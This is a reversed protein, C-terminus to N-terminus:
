HNRVEGHPKRLTISGVAGILSVGAAVAFSLTFSDTIDTFVGGVYPGIAQGIGFFVTIFGLGAPALRPGVYDGAAAAMITPISWATIGFIVASLSFGVMSKYFAFIFYSLALTVYALAAGFRRGVLDSIGGWVIGCFISLGGAWAWLIGARASTLGMEKELYTSFFHMYIIYSFGYMFYVLGLYWVEKVRYILKWNLSDPGGHYAPKEERSRSGVSALGLDEPRTKIFLGCIGAIVLVAGGLWYWSFRWGGEGYVRLIWPVVLGSILTGLGIGSTVIGTALGRRNISFWASGLAMAPVFAGGNGLGTLIRMMLAFEFIESIGTLIMAIGMTMLSCFIVIRTGYKAALFGGILASTLYGLFNGTGLIGSQTYTLQLGDIMHPLIPTLAMRGFGHAGITTLTGMAVVIWGYHIARRGEM